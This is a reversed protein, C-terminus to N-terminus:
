FSRAHARNVKQSSSGESALMNKLVIELWQLLETLTVGKPLDGPAGGAGTAVPKSATATASPSPTPTPVASSVVAAATTPVPVAISSVTASAVATPSPSSVPTATTSPTPNPAVASSSSGSAHPTSGSGSSAGSIVAPGPVLYSSIATYINILIGPDTESYLKTGLTGTSLDNSGSGTVKLNVCQPYNQAGDATGASHLAIIEHRLVYNGPTISSPITVTWSNNAAILKDSAWNGPVTTDDILGVGDIKNFLLKTKDVTTCDGNCNALYDIVPGHHSVPWPTWQLEVTGGAKVTASKQGPTAGLHCIIDANAYADPAVFGNSLDQPISWGVVAPPPSAYQMSPSYGQYYVGDAVIGSVTGHASVKSFSTIVGALIALKIFSM